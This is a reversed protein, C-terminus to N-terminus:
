NIWKRDVKEAKGFVEEFQKVTCPLSLTQNSSFLGIKTFANNQAAAPWCTTTIKLNVLKEGSFTFTYGDRYFIAEKNSDSHPEISEFIAHPKVFARTLNAFSTKAGDSLEIWLNTQDSQSMMAPNIQFYDIKESGRFVESGEALIGKKHIEVFNPACGTFIVSLFIFIVANFKTKM